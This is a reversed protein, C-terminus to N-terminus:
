DWVRMRDLQRLGQIAVIGVDLTQMAANHEHKTFTNGRNYGFSHMVESAKRYGTLKKVASDVGRNFSLLKEHRRGLAYCALSVVGTFFACYYPLSM